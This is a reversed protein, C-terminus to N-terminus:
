EKLLGLQDAYARDIATSSAGTDLLFDAPPLGNISAKIWVHRSGYRFGIRAVGHAGLWTVAREESPPPLFLASDGAGGSRVSDLIVRNTPTEDSLFALSQDIGDQLTARRRGGMRRYRSLFLTADSRDVREITRTILGTGGSFWLRRAAGVPPTVELCT